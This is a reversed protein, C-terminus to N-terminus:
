RQLAPDRLLFSHRQRITTDPIGTEVMLEVPTWTTRVKVLARRHDYSYEAYFSHRGKPEPLYVQQIPHTSQVVVLSPAVVALDVSPRVPPDAPRAAGLIASALLFSRVM